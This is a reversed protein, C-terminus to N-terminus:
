GAAEIATDMGETVKSVTRPSASVLHRLKPMPMCELLEPLVLM